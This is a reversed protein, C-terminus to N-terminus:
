TIRLTKLFIIIFSRVGYTVINGTKDQLLEAGGKLFSLQGESEPSNPNFPDADNIKM